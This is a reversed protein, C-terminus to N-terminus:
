KLASETYINSAFKTFVNDASTRADLLALGDDPM